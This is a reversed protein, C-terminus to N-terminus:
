WSAYALNLDHSVRFELLRERDAYLLPFPQRYV